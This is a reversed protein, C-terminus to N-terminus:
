NVYRSRREDESSGMPVLGDRRASFKIEVVHTDPPSEPEPKPKRKWGLHKPQTREHEPIAQYYFQGDSESYSRSVKGEVVLVDMAFGICGYKEDPWTCIFGYKPHVMYKAVNDLYYRTLERPLQALQAVQRPKNSYICALLFAVADRTEPGDGIDACLTAVDRNFEDVDVEM